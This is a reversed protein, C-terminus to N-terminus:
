DDGEELKVFEGGCTACRIDEVITFYKVGGKRHRVLIDYAEILHFMADVKDGRQKSRIQKAVELVEDNTKLM